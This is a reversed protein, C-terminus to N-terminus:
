NVQPREYDDLFDSDFDDIVIYDEPNDGEYDVVEYSGMSASIASALSIISLSASPPEQVRLCGDSDQAPSYSHTGPFSRGGLASGSRRRKHQLDAQLRKKRSRMKLRLEAVQKAQEQTPDKRKWSKVFVGFNDKCEFYRVGEISGDNKGVPEFLEVGLWPELDQKRVHLAGIYRVTGLGRSILVVDGLKIKKTKVGIRTKSDYAKVKERLERRRQLKKDNPSLFSM